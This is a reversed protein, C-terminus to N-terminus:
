YDVLDEYTTKVKKVQNFSFEEEEGSSGRPAMIFMRGDEDEGIELNFIVAAVEQKTSGSDLAKKVTASVRKSLPCTASAGSEDILIINMSKIVGNNYRDITGPVFKLKGNPIIENVTGLSELTNSAEYVKFQLAMHTKPKLTQCVPSGGSEGLKAHPKQQFYGGRGHM